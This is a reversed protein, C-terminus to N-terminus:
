GEIQAISCCVVRIELIDEGEEVPELLRFRMVVASRGLAVESVRECSAEVSLSASEEETLVLGFFCEDEM